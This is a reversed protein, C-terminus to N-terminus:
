GGPHNLYVREPPLGRRALADRVEDVMARQGCLFAVADDVLLEALHQQVRGVRGTWSADAATLTPLVTLGQAAWADLEAQWALHARSTVGYLATVRGFAARERAVARLVSRIPAFGTGTAVLVLNRGRALHLPFGPGEPPTVEVADGAKAGDLLAAGAGARKVLYEFPAEGPTSAIALVAEELSSARLRHYQGATHFKSAVDRPVALSLHVLGPGADDLTTITARHWGPM